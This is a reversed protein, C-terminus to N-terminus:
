VGCGFEDTTQAGIVRVVGGGAPLITVGEGGILNFNGNNDAHYGNLSLLVDTCSAGYTGHVACDFGAGAGREAAISISNTESSVTISCNFGEVFSVIGTTAVSGAGSGIISNVRHESQFSLLAPEIPAPTDLTYVGVAQTFLETLGAGFVITIRHVDTTSTVSTYPIGPNAPITVSFTQPAPSANAYSFTFVLSPVATVEVETLTVVQAVRNYNVGSVDLVASLPITIGGATLVSNEVFPYARYSNHNLWQISRNM